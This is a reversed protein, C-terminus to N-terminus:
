DNFILKRFEQRLFGSLLERIAQDSVDILIHSKEVKVVVGWAHNGVRIEGNKINTLAEKAIEEAVVTKSLHKGIEASIDGFVGNQRISVIIAELLDASKKNSDMAINLYKEVAPQFLSQEIKEKLLDIAQRSAQELSSHLALKTEKVKKEAEAILEKAKKEAQALIAEKQSEALRRIEEADKLAPDLAETRVTQCISILREELTTTSKSDM